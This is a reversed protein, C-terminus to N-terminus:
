GRRRLGWTSCKCIATGQTHRYASDRGCIHDAAIRGQRNAPGALPILAAAGSVFDTVEVADGVAYIAADNTQMHPNVAIGGRAGLTLGAEKALKTEPRVGVSVIVMDTQVSDGGSLQVTLREGSEEISTVSNNLKLDVGHLRLEDALPAAMEADVTGMVQPELEVLTVGVGREILAETMELGIYGGGLVLAHNAKPDALRLIIADM